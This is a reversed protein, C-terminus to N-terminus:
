TEHRGLPAHLNLLIAKSRPHKSAGLCGQLFLHVPLNLHKYHKYYLDAWPLGPLSM